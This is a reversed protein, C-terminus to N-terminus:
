LLKTSLIMASCSIGFTSICSTELLTLASSKEELDLYFEKFSGLLLLDNWLGLYSLTAM